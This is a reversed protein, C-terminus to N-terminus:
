DVALAPPAVQSGRGGPLSRLSEDLMVEASERWGPAKTQIADRRGKLWLAAKYFPIHAAVQPHGGSAIYTKLFVEAAGDLARRSGLHRGALRGLSVVFKALDRAPDAIDYLDWDVVATRGEAFIVQHECFDGHGACMPIASPSPAAARLLEVLEGAKTALPGGGESILRCKREAWRLFKDIELVRGMLPAAAHFQALWRACREAGASRQREDGHKFIEKALTGVVREQLLLRLSPLYVIPQPVSFEADRDFGAQWLGEMVRYVDQRDSPYVKGILSESRGDTYLVIEFTSPGAPQVRLTQIQIKPPMRHLWQFGPVVGLGRALEEASFPAPASNSRNRDKALM